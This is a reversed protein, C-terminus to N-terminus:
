YPFAPTRRFVDEKLETNQAKRQNANPTRMSIDRTRRFGTELRNIGGTLHAPFSELAVAERACNSTYVGAPAIFVAEGGFHHSFVEYRGHRVRTQDTGVFFSQQCGARRTTEVAHV